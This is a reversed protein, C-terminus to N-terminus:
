DEEKAGTGAVVSEPVPQLGYYSDNEMLRQAIEPTVRIITLWHRLRDTVEQPTAPQNGNALFVRFITEVLPLNPTIYDEKQSCCNPIIALPDGGYTTVRTEFTVKGTKADERPLSEEVSTGLRGRCSRCMRSQAMAKFSRNNEAYWQLDIKYRPPKEEAPVDEGGTAAEGSTREEVDDDPSFTM